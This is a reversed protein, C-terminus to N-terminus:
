LLEGVFYRDEGCMEVEDEGTFITGMIYYGDIEKTIDLEYSVLCITQGEAGHYTWGYM